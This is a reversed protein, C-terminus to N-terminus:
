RELGTRRVADCLNTWFVCGLGFEEAAEVCGSDARDKGNRAPGIRCKRSSGIKMCIPPDFVWTYSKGLGNIRRNSSSAQAVGLYTLFSGPTLRGSRKMVRATMRFSTFSRSKRRTVEAYATM